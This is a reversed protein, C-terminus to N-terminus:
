DEMNGLRLKIDEVTLWNINNKTTYNPMHALKYLGDGDNWLSKNDIEVYMDENEYIDKDLNLITEEIKEGKRLGVVEYNKEGSIAQALDVIMFSPMKPIFIEGGKMNSLIFEISKVVDKPEYWFRCMAPDTIPLIKNGSTMKKQFFPIVSGNSGAINGCRLVSFKTLNNKNANIFCREAILKTAGYVSTPSCAKDTSLLIAQKVNYDICNQIVNQTGCVNIEYAEQMNEECLDIHKLAATHVVIDCNLFLYKFIENNRIDCLVFNVKRLINSGFLNIIERKFNVQNLENRSVLTVGKVNNNLLFKIISKGVTGTGGTVLVNKDKFDM